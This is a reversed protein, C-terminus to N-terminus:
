YNTYKKESLPEEIKLAAVYLNSICNSTVARKEFALFPMINKKKYV